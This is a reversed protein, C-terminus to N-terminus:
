IFHDGFIRKIEEELDWYTFAHVLQGNIMQPEKDRIRIKLKKISQKVDEGVYCDQSEIAGFVGTDIERIVKKSSLTEEDTTHIIGVEKYYGLHKDEPEVPHDHPKMCIDCPPNQHKCRSMNFGRKEKIGKDEIEV